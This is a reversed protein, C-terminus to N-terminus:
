ITNNECLSQPCSKKKTMVTLVFPEKGTKPERGEVSFIRDRVCPRLSGTELYSHICYERLNFRGDESCPSMMVTLGTQQLM